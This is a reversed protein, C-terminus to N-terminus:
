KYSKEKEWCKKVAQAVVEVVEPNFSSPIIYDRSLESDKIIYAISKAAEIKMNETITTARADLAGRFIGPFALVNNIQNPYDSRGTGVVFAGVEYADEPMIEPIPNAMAFIVSDDEMSGIMDKTIIGPVSVGVLVNAGVMIDKLTDDLNTDLIMNKDIMECLYESYHERKQSSVLGVRNYAYINKVGLASLMRIISSGAAGTGLIVFKEQKFDKKKLRYANILAAITVIATGHQDDHFVPINLEKILRREIEICKPAKIDELNIGGYTPEILKCFTIIDEVSQSNICLPIADIDAFRKFLIAKGEMVPLAALPGINGLGLVASGDSVVAVSNWKSTLKYVEEPNDKIVLCPEAVGPSYALSLDTKDNIEVKSKIEFKGKKNYHLELARKKYDM